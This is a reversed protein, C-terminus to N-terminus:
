VDKDSAVDPNEESVAEPAEKAKAAAQLEFIRDHARDAVKALVLLDDRGFSATNRWGDDEAKYLRAFTVNYRVGRDTQNAWIAGHVFGVRIDAVPKPKKAM